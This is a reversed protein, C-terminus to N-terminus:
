VFWFTKACVVTGTEATNSTAFIPPLKDSPGIAGPTHPIIGYPGAVYGYNVSQTDAAVDPLNYARSPQPM